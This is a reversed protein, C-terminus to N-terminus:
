KQLWASGRLNCIPGQFILSYLHRWKSKVSYSKFDAFIDDKGGVKAPITSLCTIELRGYKDAHLDSVKISLQSSSYTPFNRVRKINNTPTSTRPEGNLHRRMKHLTELANRITLHFSYLPRHSFQQYLHLYFFSSLDSMRFSLYVFSVSLFIPPYQQCLFPLPISYFICPWNTNWFVIFISFWFFFFRVYLVSLDLCFVYFLLTCLFVLILGTLIANLTNDLRNDM